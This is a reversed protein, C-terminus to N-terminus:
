QRRTPRKRHSKGLTHRRPIGRRSWLIQDFALCKSPAIEIRRPYSIPPRRSSCRTAIGLCNSLNPAAAISDPRWLFDCFRRSKSFSTRSSLGLLAYKKLIVTHRATRPSFLYYYSLHKGVCAAPSRDREFSRGGPGFKSFQAAQFKVNQYAVM